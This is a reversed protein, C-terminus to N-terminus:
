HSILLPKPLATLFDRSVGGFVYEQVRAHGYLGLIVMDCGLMDIHRRIIEGTPADNDRDIVLNVNKVDHAKLHRVLHENLKKKATRSVVVFHVEEASSLFPWADRLARASERSDKWAVMISRGLQPKYGGIPTVIVPGGSGMGIQEATITNRSHEVSALAPYISLDFNRSCAIIDDDHDGDFELWQVGDIGKAAGDFLARAAKANKLSAAARENELKKITAASLDGAVDAPLAKAKLFMGTLSAQFRKATAVAAEVRGRSGPKTDVQVLINRYTM